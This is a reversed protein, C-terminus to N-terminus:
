KVTLQVPVLTTDWVISLVGSTDRLQDIFILFSEVGVAGLDVSNVNVTLKPKKDGYSGAGSEGFEFFHVAWSSQGPTTFLAYTGAALTKGEVMVDKSFTIKTAANAGTRWQKGYPVLEGFIKRDKVGPRSYEITVDTTGVKQEVKSFPSPAAKDQANVSITFAFFAIALVSTLLKKM